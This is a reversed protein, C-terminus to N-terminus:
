YEKDLNQFKDLLLSNGSSWIYYETDGAFIKQEITIDQYQLVQEDQNEDNLMGLDLVEESETTQLSRIRLDKKLRGGLDVHEFFQNKSGVLTIQYGARGSLVWNMKMAAVPPLSTLYRQIDSYDAFTNVQDVELDFVGGEEGPIKSVAYHSSLKEALDSVLVELLKPLSSSYQAGVEFTQKLNLSWNGSWLGNESEYVRMMVVADANYRKSAQEVSEPFLGWLDDIEIGSVDQLDAVPLYLPVGRQEGLLLLQEVLASTDSTGVISREGKQEYAVWVLVSPRVRGWIPLGHDTMKKEVISQAFSVDLLYPLPSNISEIANPDENKELGKDGELSSQSQIFKQYAPNERYSFTQVIPEAPLLTNIFGPGTIENFQGSAKVLVISLAQDFAQLRDQKQQSAIPVSASYLKNIQVANVPMSGFFIFGFLLILASYKSLSPAMGNKRQFHLSM